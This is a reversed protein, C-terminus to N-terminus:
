VRKGFHCDLPRLISQVLRFLIYSVRIPTHLFISKATAATHGLHEIAAVMNALDASQNAILLVQRRVAAYRAKLFAEFDSVKVKWFGNALKVAPLRRHYIWQKVCEGTVNLIKGIDNPSLFRESSQNAQAGSGNASM